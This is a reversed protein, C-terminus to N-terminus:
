ALREGRKLQFDRAFIAGPLRAKGEMQVEDLVLATGDAAGALLMTGDLALEGARLSPADADAPHM